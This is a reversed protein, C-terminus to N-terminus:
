SEDDFHDVHLGGGGGSGGQPGAAGALPATLSDTSHAYTATAHAIADTNTDLAV